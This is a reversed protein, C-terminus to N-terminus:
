PRYRGQAIAKMTREHALQEQKVRLQKVLRARQGSLTELALPVMNPIRTAAHEWRVVTAVHVGLLDALAAQSLYHQERWRVLERPKM